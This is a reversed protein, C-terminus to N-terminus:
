DGAVASAYASDLRLLLEAQEPADLWSGRIANSLLKAVESATLDLAAATERLNDALYGGFYAPDDSNVCASLGADLMRKLPHHELDDVVCLKV